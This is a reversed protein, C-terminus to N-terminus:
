SKVERLFRIGNYAGGAVPRFQEWGAIEPTTYAYVGPINSPHLSVIRPEGSMEDHLHGEREWLTLRLGDDVPTVEARCEACEWTGVLPDPLRTLDAELRAPPRSGDISATVDAFLEYFLGDARGGTTLLAVTYRTGPILRLYARQGITGGDHGHVFTGHWDELFWGLGWGEVTPVSERLDVHAITMLRAGAASLVRVGDRSTGGRLAMEAFSLLDGVSAVILGAPGMSRTISWQSVPVSAAGFGVHGTAAAFRPVDETLTVTHHLGLPEVLYRRVAEDWTMARLVEVIRGAVVFAANCYSFREGPRHVHSVHALHEVYRAICDDGRGTDTFVDGEIGSTHHLLARVTVSPADDDALRFEPLVSRVPADLDLLGEDVLQMVLMTTWVKTISGIQFIADEVVPEGTSVDLVGSCVTIHDFVEGQRDLQVIGLQAGVVGHRERLLDLRRRWYREGRPAPSLAAPRADARTHQEVWEVVRAHYDARHDVPGDAIFLHDGGPYVVLRTPVGRVRLASFWQQAQGVPCTADSGGHLVLTPTSVQAVRAIPSREVLEVVDTPAVGAAASSFFGEPLLRQASAFDCLLGGAVAAAFRDTHSTLACVALGGYSYGTVALRDPDAIGEAILQDIPELLDALDARGWESDVARLFEEGYGDSGRPNVTLVRWGRAALLQQYLHTEDAVGAWANHPGGHVDLLLPAAGTTDPAATLWGHVVTGDAIEFERPEPRFLEVDPLCEQMLSTVVEVEGTVLDVLAVEAFSKPTTLVIAARLADAAVSLGSVVQHPEAVIPRSGGGDARLAYLHTWGRERLCFVIEGSSSLAPHGGPSGAAGPLVNRDLEATLDIDPRDDLHLRLLRAHGTAMVPAGVAVVSDGDPSWLLPGTVATARGVRRVPLFSADVEVTHVRRELSVDARHDIAGVFAVLRGDPSWCPGDADADGDTVQRVRGSELDLVFVQRRVSGIWGAGDARQDLTDVVIPEPAADPKGDAPARDVAASFALRRGDPSVAAPGAGQPLATLPVPEGNRPLLHLQPIGGVDRLFVIGAASFRPARDAPGHTLPRPRADGAVTWLSTETRHGDVVQRRTFVVTEGDAAIATEPVTVIRRVDDLSLPRSM